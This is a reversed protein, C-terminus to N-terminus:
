SADSGAARPAIRGPAVIAALLLVGGILFALRGLRSRWPKARGPPVLALCVLYVYRLTGPLLVWAAFGQRLWLVLGLVLILASDTEGDFIAGFESACGFRRAILGDIADLVFAALFAALLTETSLRPLLAM